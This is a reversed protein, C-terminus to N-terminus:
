LTSKPHRRRKCRAIGYRRRVTRCRGLTIITRGDDTAKDGQRGTARDGQRGTARDGQVARVAIRVVMAHVRQQVFNRCCLKECYQSDVGCVCTVGSVSCDFCSIKFPALKQLVSPYGPEKLWPCRLATFVCRCQGSSAQSQWARGCLHRRRCQPLGARQTM